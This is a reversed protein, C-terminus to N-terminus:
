PRWLELTSGDPLPTSAVERFGLSQAARLVSRQHVVPAFESKSGLRLVLFPERGRWARLQPAYSAPDNAATAPLVAADFQRRADFAQDLRFTNVNLLRGNTAFVVPPTERTHHSMLRVRTLLAQNAAVWQKGIPDGPELEGIAYIDFESRGDILTTQGIGPLSVSVM